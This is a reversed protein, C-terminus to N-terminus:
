FFPRRTLPFLMIPSRVSAAACPLLSVMMQPHFPPQGREEREYYRYIPRLDMEAVADVLFYVLHDEGLWERPSPPFLYGQEPSWERYTKGM